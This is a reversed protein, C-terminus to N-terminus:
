NRFRRKAGALGILGSGLLLMTTPEPVPAAYVNSIEARSGASDNPLERLNFTIQANPTNPINLLPILPIVSSFTGSYFSGNTSRQTSTMDLLTISQSTNTADVFWLEATFWDTGGVPDHGYFNWDFSVKVSDASPIYFDQWLSSSMDAAWGSPPRGVHAEDGHVSVPGTTHWGDLGDSGMSFDGNTILNASAAGVIGLLFLFLSLLVLINKM